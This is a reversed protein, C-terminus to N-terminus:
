ALHNKVLKLNPKSVPIKSDDTLIINPNGSLSIEKIMLMNVIAKRHVRLFNSGLKENLAKLSSRMTYSAENQTHVRVCYDDAEIWLIDQVPIIKRKNGIKINLITASDDIKTSLKKYALNHTIKLESLEHVQIQLQENSFYLYSIVAIAIYGLTYVPIKQFAYFPLFEKVLSSMSFPSESILLQSFANILISLLVLSLIVVGYTIFIKFTFKRSVQNKFYQILILSLVMWITWSLAQPKLISLFTAADNINYKKVYYLQQCTEFVIAIILISIVILISKKKNSINATFRFM